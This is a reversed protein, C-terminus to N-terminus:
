HALKLSLGFRSLSIKIDCRLRFVWRDHFLMIPFFHQLSVAKPMGTSGSTFIVYAISDGTVRVRSLRDHGVDKVINNVNVAADIDVTPHDVDFKDRTLEHLLVLRSQTEKLLTHLRQPPDQPSLPCYVAGAMEIAM